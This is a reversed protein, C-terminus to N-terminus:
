VAEIRALLLEEQEHALGPTALSRQRPDQLPKDALVVHDPERQVAEIVLEAEFVEDILLHRDDAVSPEVPPRVFRDRPEKRDAALVLYRDVPLM